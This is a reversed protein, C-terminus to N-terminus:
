SSRASGCSASAASYGDGLISSKSPAVPIVSARRFLCISANRMRRQATAGTTRVVAHADFSSTRARSWAAHASRPYLSLVFPIARHTSCAAASRVRGCDRGCEAGRGTGDAVSHNDPLTPCTSDPIMLAPALSTAIPMPVLEPGLLSPAASAAAPRDRWAAPDGIRRSRPGRIPIADSRTSGRGM